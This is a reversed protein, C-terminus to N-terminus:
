KLLLFSGKKEFEYGYDSAARIYYTYTDPNQLKGNYRGDWGESLDQTSFVLNGWRNFIKFDVENVNNSEIFFIDNEGDGNPTFAKPLELYFNVIVEINFDYSLSFCEDQVVVTYTIDADPRVIPDPCSQCSISYFPSWNYQSNEKNSQILLQLSEGIIISTDGVPYRHVIPPEEVHVTINRTESCAYEDTVTAFFLTTVPPNAIPNFVSADNLYSAPTWAINWGPQEDVQLQASETGPCINTDGYIQFAPLSVAEVTQSTSDACGIGNIIELTVIHLGTQNFYYDSLHPNSSVEIGDISWLSQNYDSSENEANLAANICISEAENLITFEAVPDYVQLTQGSLTVECDDRVVRLAPFLRGSGFYVHDPNLEDSVTGDGFIWEFEDIEESQLIQFSVTDGSCVSSPAFIYDVDPGGIEIVKSASAMCNNATQITLSSIFTGPENYTYETEPNYTSSQQGPQFTWTGSVVESFNVHNFAITAPYCDTISDSVIFSADAKEVSVYDTRILSSTCGELEATLSVTYLGVESYMHTTSSGPPSGDGYDWLYSDLDPDSPVFAAEEGLCVGPKIAQFGANPTIVRVLQQSSNECGYIDKVNLIASFETDRNSLYQHTPSPNNSDDATMDGFDWVWSSITEDISDYSFNVELDPGCGSEPGVSFDASPRVVQIFTDITDSCGNEATVILQPYYSGEEFYTYPHVPSYNRRPPYKDGFDWLFGEIFCENIYDVSGSANFETEEGACLVPKVAFSAKVQRVKVTRDKTLSCGTSSNTASLTVIYDEAKNFEYRFSDVDAFEETGITWLLGDANEFRSVFTYVLPSDCSFQFDFYGTPGDVVIVDQLSTESMCYNSEIVLHIDKPGPSSPFLTVSTNPISLKETAFLGNSAYQWSNVKDASPEDSNLLLVDGYCITEPDVTFEPLFKEGAHIEVKYSTDRCGEQNTIALIVEYNGPDEFSYTFPDNDAQTFAQDDIYYTWEVIPEASLSSDSFVVDFPVCGSSTDPMFRAVPLKTILNRVLTDRCGNESTAILRFPLGKTKLTHTYIEEYNLIKPIRTSFIEENSTSGDPLLWEIESYNESSNSLTIDVPLSCTYDNDMTFGAKVYDVRFIKSISDPCATSQGYFLSLDVTGSDPANITIQRLNTFTQSGDKYKVVWTYDPQLRLTSGFTLMGPCLLTNPDSIQEGNVLAYIEGSQTGINILSEKLISDTCNNEDTVRLSVDYNGNESYLTYGSFDNSTSDNGFFWLSELEGTGESLNLFNVSLPANCSFSDSASFGALPQPHITALSPVETHSTCGNNDTVQMFVDKSGPQTYTYEVSQGVRTQGDRFDWFVEAIETDGATSNDTFSVTLPACGAVPDAAFAAVPGMAITIVHSSWATDSGNVVALTITYEGPETYAEYLIEEDSPFVAGKGFDWLYANGAEMISTNTITVITPACKYDIRVEFSSSQANSVIGSFFVTIFFSSVASKFIYQLYQLITKM